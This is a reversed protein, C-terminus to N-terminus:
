WLPQGKPQGKFVSLKKELKKIRGEYVSMLEKFKKRGERITDLLEKVKVRRKSPKEMHGRVLRKVQEKCKLPDNM